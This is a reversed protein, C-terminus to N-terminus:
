LVGKLISLKFQNLEVDVGLEILATLRDIENDLRSRLGSDDHEIEEGGLKRLAENLADRFSYNYDLYNLRYNILNVDLQRAELIDERTDDWEFSNAYVRGDHIVYDEEFDDRLCEEFSTYYEPLEGDALWNEKLLIRKCVDELTEGDVFEVLRLVGKFASVDSM